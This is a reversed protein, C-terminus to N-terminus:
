IHILSLGFRNDLVLTDVSTKSEGEQALLDLLAASSKGVDNEQFKMKRLHTRLFADTALSQAKERTNERILNETIKSVWWFSGATLALLCVGFLIRIKRELRSEGLVRKIGRYSM